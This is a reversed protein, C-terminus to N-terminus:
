NHVTFTVDHVSGQLHSGDIMYSDMVPTLTDQGIDMGERLSNRTAITRNAHVSACYAGDVALRFEGGSQFPAGMAWGWGAPYNGYSKPGGLDDIHALMEQVSEDFRNM